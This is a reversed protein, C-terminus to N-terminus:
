KNSECLGTKKNRRTGNPCKTPKNKRTKTDPEMKPGEIIEQAVELVEEVINIPKSESASVTDSHLLKRKYFDSKVFTKLFDEITIKNDYARNINKKCKTNQIVSLSIFVDNKDSIIYKFLPYPVDKKKELGGPLVIFVYDNDNSSGYALFINERKQTHIIPKQSIFFCPIEFKNVLIWFDFPTLFYDDNFIMDSFSYKGSKFMSVMPQKGELTLIDLIKRENSPDSVVFTQYLEFLINKLENVSYKKSTKKEIIDLIIDFTCYKTKNFEVEKYNEPFCKSWYGSTIKTKQKKDCVEVPMERKKTNVESINVVNDYTQSVIPDAEDYTNNKIHPDISLPILNEFYEPTLLSQLIIIEDDRLNYGIIGFSLYVQPQFMYSKIRNYRILEDSIKDYYMTENQKKSDVLNYEPLILKCIGNKEVVCVNENENESEQSTSESRKEKQACQGSSKMICSSLQDVLKYYTHNGTFSVKNKTLERLLRKINELKQMYIVYEKSLEAEIEKRLKIYKHDNLLVRITTRFANYFKNEAKIKQIYEVRAVDEDQSITIISDSSQIPKLQKGDMVEQKTNPNIFYNENKFSPLDYELPINIELIPQSLQIFQNTETLIGVVMEDEVIKFVPKCDITQKKKEKSEKELSIANLDKLFRVTTEYNNWLSVDTMPVYEVNKDISIYMNGMSSPYCPVFGVIGSPSEAVIGIIKSNFNMVFKRINYNYKKLAKVLEFLLMPRKANYEIVGNTERMRPVSLKWPISELPKCMDEYFPKIVKEFLDKLTQTLLPSKEKFFKIVDNKNSTYSYVPEYYEYKKILILTPKNEDYFESSYHNTPCIMNVKNTIDDDPIEFIVLNIGNKFLYPSPKCVIDWLYTHDIVSQSEKLFDIFNERAFVVKKYFLRDEPKNMDLKSFLISPNNKNYNSNVDMLEDESVINSTINLKPDYFDVVLNGNQYLIFNDIDLTKLLRERKFDQVSLIKAQKKVLAGNEDVVNEVTAAFMADSICALFSQRANLEIGHRLLCPKDPNLNTNTKSIQCEESSENFLLQIALPM